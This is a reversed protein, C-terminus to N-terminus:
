LIGLATKASSLNKEFLTYFDGQGELVNYYFNDLLVQDLRKKERDDHVFKLRFTLAKLTKYWQLLFVKNKEYDDIGLWKEIEVEFLESKTCANVQLFYKFDDDAYVRGLPFLRCINPRFHHVNCRGDESLFCCRKDDGVMRLHPLLINNDEKLILYTGLLEDLAKNLGRSLAYVDFPTLVVMAEVDHCCASCAECGATGANVYDGIDYLNGDSIDELTYVLKM